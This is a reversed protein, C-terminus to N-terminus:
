KRVVPAAVRLIRQRAASWALRLAAQASAVEGALAKLAVGSGGPLASIGVKVPGGADWLDGLGARVTDADLGASVVLLTGLAPAAPSSDGGSPYPRTEFGGARCDLGGRGMPSHDGPAITFAEHYIPYGDLSSVTLSSQLCTYALSEGLAARGPALVEGYVLTAGPAVTISAKQTLRASRYPILPGPLYELFAGEEIYLHTDQYAIGGPM